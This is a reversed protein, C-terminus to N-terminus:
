VGELSLVCYAPSQQTTSAKYFHQKLRVQTRNFTRLWALRDTHGRRGFGPEHDVTRNFLTRCDSLYQDGTAIHAHVVQDIERDPVIRESPHCYLLFLLQKYRDIEKEIRLRSWQHEVRLIRAISQFNILEIRKQFAQYEATYEETNANLTVHM